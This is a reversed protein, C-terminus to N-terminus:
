VNPTTPLHPRFHEELLAVSDDLDLSDDIRECRLGLEACSAQIREDILADRERLKGLARERDVIGPFREVQGVGWRRIEIIECRERTPM